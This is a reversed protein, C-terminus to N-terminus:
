DQEIYDFPHAELKQESFGNGVGGSRFKSFKMPHFEFRVFRDRRESRKQFTLKLKLTDCAAIFSLKM